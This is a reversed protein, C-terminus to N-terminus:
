AQGGHAEFARRLAASAQDHAKTAADLSATATWFGHIHGEVEIHKTAVGAAMLKKAYAVGDDHLPDHTATIILAPPLASLDSARLPAAVVSTREADTNFYCEFFWAMVDATLSYGEAFQRYSGTDLRTDTVPYILLQFVLKPGGETKARQTVAIALCGGASDGAVAIRAPDGGFTGCTKAVWQTAAWADDSPKPFKNEPAKRYDVSVVICNAKACLAQCVNDFCDINLVVFGSGHFYILVPLPQAKEWGTPWYIRVPIPGHPGSVSRNEIKGVEPGPAALGTVLAQFGARIDAIPRERIPPAGAQAAAVMDLIAQVQPHVGVTEAGGDKGAREYPPRALM